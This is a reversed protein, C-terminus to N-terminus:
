YFTAQGSGAAGGSPFPSVGVHKLNTYLGVPNSLISPIGLDADTKWIVHGDGFL